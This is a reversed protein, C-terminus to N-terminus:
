KINRSPHSKIKNKFTFDTGDHQRAGGYEKIKAEPTEKQKENVQSPAVYSPEVESLEPHHRLSSGAPRKTGVM